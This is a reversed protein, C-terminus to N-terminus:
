KPHKRSKEHGLRGTHYDQGVAQEGVPLGAPSGQRQDELKRFYTRSGFARPEPIPEPLAPPHTIVNVFRSRLCPQSIALKPCHPGIPSRPRKGRQPWLGVSQWIRSSFPDTQNSASGRTPGPAEQRSDGALSEWVSSRRCANGPM